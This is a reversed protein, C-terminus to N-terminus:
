RGREGDIVHVTNEVVVMGDCLVTEGSLSPCVALCATVFEPPFTFPKALSLHPFFGGRTCLRGEGTRFHFWGIAGDAQVLIRHGDEIPLVTWERAKRGFLRTRITNRM